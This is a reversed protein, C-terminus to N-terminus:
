IGKGYQRSTQSRQQVYNSWVIGFALFPEQAAYDPYYKYAHRVPSTGPVDYRLKGAIVPVFTLEPTGTLPYQLSQGMMIALEGMTTLYTPSFGGGESTAGGPIGTFRKTGRRVARTTQTSVFGYSMVPSLPNGDVQAGPTQPIFPATFFDALDWIEKVIIQEYKVTAVQISLIKKYLTDAPLSGSVPICGFANALAESGKITTPTGTTQYNWRNIIQQNSYTSQLVVEYLKAM